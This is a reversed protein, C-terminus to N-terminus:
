PPRVEFDLFSAAHVATLKSTRDLSGACLRQRQPRQGLAPTLPRSDELRWARSAKIPWFAAGLPLLDITTPAIGAGSGRVLAPIQQAWALQIASADISASPADTQLNETLM